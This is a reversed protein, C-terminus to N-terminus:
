FTYQFCIFVEGLFNETPVKKMIERKSNKKKKLQKRNCSLWRLKEGGLTGFKERTFKTTMSERTMAMMEKTM